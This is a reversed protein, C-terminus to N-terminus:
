IGDQYGRLTDMKERALAKRRDTGGVMVPVFMELVRSYIRAHDRDAPNRIEDLNLNTTVILPKRSRYRSDILVLMQELAFDTDREMGFDDLILLPYRCLQHIYENRGDRRDMLDNLILGFNTMRVPVEQEILANAICGALYSKGTGVGGWLLLGINKELDEEWHQVYQRARETQPSSGSISEFTWTRMVPDTFCNRRLRDVTELHKREAAEAKAQERRAQECDCIAPLLMGAYPPTDSHKQKPTHCVGCYIIGDESLYDGEAMPVTAMNEIFPNVMEDARNM